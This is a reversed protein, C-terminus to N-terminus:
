LLVTVEENWDAFDTVGFQTWRLRVRVKVSQDYLPPFRAASNFVWANLPDPISPNSAFFEWGAGEGYDIEAEAGQGAVHTRFYLYLWTAVPDEWQGGTPDYIWQPEIVVQPTAGEKWEKGDGWSKSLLSRPGVWVRRVTSDPGDTIGDTAVLKFRLWTGIEGPAPTYVYELDSEDVLAAQTWTAGEDDSKMVRTDQAPPGGTWTLLINATAANLRRWVASAFVRQTASTTFTGRGLSATLATWADPDDFAGGYGLGYLSGSRYRYAHEYEIGPGLGTHLIPQFTGAAPVLSVRAWAGWTTPSLRRRRWVEVATGGILGVNQIRATAGFDQIAGDGWEATPLLVVHGTPVVPEGAEPTGYLTGSCYVPVGRETYSWEPQGQVALSLAYGRQRFVFEILDRVPLKAIFGVDTDGPEILDDPELGLLDLPLALSQSPGGAVLRPGTSSWFVVGGNVGAALRPGAVGFDADLLTFGFSAKSYGTMMHIEHEKLVVLGAGTSQLSVVLEGFHGYRMYDDREFTLPEGELSTRVAEPWDASEAGFGAGTLYSLHAEVTYFRVPAPGNGDFDAMLPQLSPAAAPDYYLTEARHGVFPEAHALFIYGGTDACIVVPMECELDHVTFWHFRGEPAIDLMIPFMGDATTRYVYVKGAHLAEPDSQYGVVIGERLARQPHIAIVRVPEGAEDTFLESELMGGRALAKGPLLYVNRLDRMSTPRVVTRGSVRDLGSGFPVPIRVREGM